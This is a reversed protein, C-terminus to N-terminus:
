GTKDVIKAMEAKSFAPMTTTRINGQAGIQLMVSTLIEMSPAEAIAVIDYPGVTWFIEKLKGGNQEILQAVAESRKPSDKFNRIGQDTFNGLIIFNAM